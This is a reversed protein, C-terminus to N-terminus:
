LNNLREDVIRGTSTDLIYYGYYGNPNFSNTNGSVSWTTLQYRGAEQTEQAVVSPFFPRLLNLILLIAVIILLIKISKDNNKLMM